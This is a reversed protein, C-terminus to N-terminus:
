AVPSLPQLRDSASVFGEALDSTELTEVRGGTRHAIRQLTADTLTSLPTDTRAVALLVGPRELLRVHALGEALRRGLARDDLSQDRRYQVVLLREGPAVAPRAFEGIDRVRKLMPDGLIEVYSLPPGGCGAIHLVANWCMGHEVDVPEAEGDIMVPAWARSSMLALRATMVGADTMISVQGNEVRIERVDLGHRIIGGAALFRQGLRELLGWAGEQPYKYLHASSIATRWASRLGRRAKDAERRALARAAVAAHFAARTLGMPARRGNILSYSPDVKMPVGMDVELCRMLALRNELLHAGIEVREFGLLSGAMWGGGMTASRDALLVRRGSEALRIARMLTLPSTGIGVVDASEAGIM